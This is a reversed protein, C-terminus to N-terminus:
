SKRRRAAVSMLCLGALFMAYTEPEPIATIMYVGQMRDESRNYSYSDFDWAGAVDYLPTQGEPLYIRRYFHGGQGVVPDQEFYSGNSVFELYPALGKSPEVITDVFGACPTCVWHGPIEFYLPNSNEDFRLGKSKNDTAFNDIALRYEFTTTPGVVDVHFDTIDPTNFMAIGNPKIAEDRISIM